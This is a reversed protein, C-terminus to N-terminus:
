RLWARKKFVPKRKRLEKNPFYAPELKGSFLTVLFELFGHRYSVLENPDGGPCTVVHTRAGHSAFFIFDGSLDSAFPVIGDEEPYFRTTRLEPPDGRTRMAKSMENLWKPYAPDLPNAILLGYGEADIEGTGYIRGYRLFEIPFEFEVQCLLSKWNDQDACRLPRPPPAVLEVLASLHDLHKPM